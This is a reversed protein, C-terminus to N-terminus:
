ETAADVASSGGQGGRGGQGAAGDWAPDGGSGVGLASDVPADPSADWWGSGDSSGDVGGWGDYGSGDGGGWGDCCGGSGDYSGDYTGDYAADSHSGDGPYGDMTGDYAGDSPNGDYPYSGDGPSLGSGDVHSNTGSVGSGAHGSTGGAGAGGSSEVKGSCAVPIWVAILAALTGQRLLREASM